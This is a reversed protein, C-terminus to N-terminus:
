TSRWISSPKEFIKVGPIERIGQKVASDILGGRKEDPICLRYEHPVQEPHEVKYAWEMRLHSSGSETRTVKPKEAVVPASVKVPEVGKKKADKDLKRQLAEVEEKAKRERERRQLEQQYTFQTEKHKLNTNITSLRDRFGNIFSRVSKVFNDPESIIEKGKDVLKKDLQKAQARMAVPQGAPM